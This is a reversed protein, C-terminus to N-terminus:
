ESQWGTARDASREDRTNHKTLSSDNQGFVFVNCQQDIGIIGMTHVISEVKSDLGYFPSNAIRLLRIALSPDASIINSFDAFSSDQNQMAQHLKHYVPPPSGIWDAVVEDFIERAKDM